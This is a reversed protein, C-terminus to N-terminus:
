FAQLRMKITIDGEKATFVLAEKAEAYYHLPLTEIFTYFKKLKAQQTKITVEYQQTDLQKVKVKDFLQESEQKFTSQSFKTTKLEINHKKAIDQLEKYVKEYENLHTYYANIQPLVWIVFLILALLYLLKTMLSSNKVTEFM